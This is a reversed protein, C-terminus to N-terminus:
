AGGRLTAGPPHHLSMMFPLHRELAVVAAGTLGTVVLGLIAYTAIDPLGLSVLMSTVDPGAIDFCLQHILLFGLSYLQGWVSLTSAVVSKVQVLYYLSFFVLVLAGFIAIDQPARWYSDAAWFFNALGGVFGYAWRGIWNAVAVFAGGLVLLTIVDSLHYGPTGGVTGVSNFVSIPSYTDAGNLCSWIVGRGVVLGFAEYLVFYL